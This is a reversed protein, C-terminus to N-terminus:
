HFFFLSLNITGKNIFELDIETEQSNTKNKIQEISHKSNEKSHFPESNLNLSCPNTENKTNKCIESIKECYNLKMYNDISINEQTDKEDNELCIDLQSHFTVPYKTHLKLTNSKISFRIATKKEIVSEYFM